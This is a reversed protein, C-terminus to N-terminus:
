SWNLHIDTNVDATVTLTALMWQLNQSLSTNLVNVTSM